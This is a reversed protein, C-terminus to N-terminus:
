CTCPYSIRRMRKAGLRRCTWGDILAHGARISFSFCCGALNEIFKEQSQGPM